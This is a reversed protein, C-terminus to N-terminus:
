SLINPASGLASAACVGEHILAAAGAFTVNAPASAIKGRPRKVKWEHLPKAHMESRRHLRRAIEFNTVRENCEQRRRNQKRVETEERRYKGFHRSIEESGAEKGSEPRVLRRVAEM